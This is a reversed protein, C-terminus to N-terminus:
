RLGNLEGLTAAAWLARPRKLRRLTEERLDPRLVAIMYEAAATTRYPLNPELPDVEAPLASDERRRVPGFRSCGHRRILWCLWANEDVLASGALLFRDLSASEPRGLAAHIREATSPVLLGCEKLESFLAADREDFFTIM